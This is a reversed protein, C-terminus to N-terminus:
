PVKFIQIQRKGLVPSFAKQLTLFQLWIECNLLLRSERKDEGRRINYFSINSSILLCLWKYNLRTENFDLAWNLLLLVGAKRNYDVFLCFKNYFDLVRTKSGTHLM